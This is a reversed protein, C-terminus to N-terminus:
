SLSLQGFPGLNSKIKWVHGCLGGDGVDQGLLVMIQASGLEIQVGFAAFWDENLREVIGQEHVNPLTMVAALFERRGVAQLFLGAMVGLLQVEIRGSEWLERGAPDGGELFSVTKVFFVVAFAAAM